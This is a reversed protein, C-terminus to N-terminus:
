NKQLHAREDQFIRLGARFEFMFICEGLADRLKRVKRQAGAVRKNPQGGKMSVFISDWRLSVRTKLGARANAFFARM